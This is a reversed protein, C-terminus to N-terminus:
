KYPIYAYALWAPKGKRFAMLKAPLPFAFATYAYAPWSLL